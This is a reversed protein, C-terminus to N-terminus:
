VKGTGQCTPCTKVVHASTDVAASATPAPIPQGPKIEAGVKRDFFRDWYHEIGVSDTYILEDYKRFTEGDTTTFLAGKTIASFRTAPAQDAM